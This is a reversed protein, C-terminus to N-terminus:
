ITKGIWLIIIIGLTNLTYSLVTFLRYTIIKSFSLLTIGIEDPLPSGIIFLGTFILLYKKVKPSLHNSLFLYFKEKKILSIEDKFETRIFSFMLLDGVLAGVGAILGTLIINSYQGFILLAATAPAATFSYTYLAGLIFAGLFGLKLLSDHVLAYERNAFIYYAIIFTLLLIFFKPYKLYYQYLKYQGRKKM